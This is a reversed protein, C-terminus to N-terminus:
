TQTGRLKYTALCKKCTINKENVELHDYTTINMAKYYTASGCDIGIGKAGLASIWERGIHKKTGTNVKVIKM